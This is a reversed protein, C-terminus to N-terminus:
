IHTDHHKFRTIAICQTQIINVFRQIKGELLAGDIQYRGVFEKLYRVMALLGMAGGRLANCISEETRNFGLFRNLMPDLYEWADEPVLDTPVSGSFMAIEDSECADPLAPLNDIAKELTVLIMIAHTNSALLATRPMIGTAHAGSLESTSEIAYAVVPTPMPITPPVLVKSQKTFFSLIGPQSEQHASAKNKKELNLQCAKSVGPNHQKVLNQIGGM